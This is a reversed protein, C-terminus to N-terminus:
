IDINEIELLINNEDFVLKFLKLYDFTGEFINKDNFKIKRIKKEINIIEINCWKMLLFTISAGHSVILNTKGRNENLVNLIADWMRKEIELRSEGKPFKLNQDEIQRKFFQQPTIALNPIGGVREGLRSDIFVKKSFILATDISRNYDSCYVNDILVDKLKRKMQESQKMGFESIKISKNRELSNESPVYRSKDTEAHRMIYIITEM